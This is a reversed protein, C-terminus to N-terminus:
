SFYEPLLQLLAQEWWDGNDILLRRPHQFIDTEAMDIADFAMNIANRVEDKPLITGIDTTESLTRAYSDVDSVM